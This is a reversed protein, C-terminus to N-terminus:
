ELEENNSDDVAILYGGKKEAALEDYPTQSRLYDTTIDVGLVGYPVGDGSILPVSYSIASIADSDSLLYPRSWYGLDQRKYVDLHTYSVPSQLDSMGLSTLYRVILPLFLECLTTLSACFLDLVLVWKYKKFYPAFRRILGTTKAM